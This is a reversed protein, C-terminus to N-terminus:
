QVTLRERHTPVIQIPSPGGMYAYFESNKM